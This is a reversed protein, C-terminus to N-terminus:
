AYRRVANVPDPDPLGRGEFAMAAALRNTVGLKPFIHELHKRVTSPAICLRHAVQANSQGAAVLQLVRREQVTLHAPLHPTPRERCLRELVPELLHLVAVDHDTFPADSRHMALQVVLEPEHRCAMVLTDAAQQAPVMRLRGPGGPLTRPLEVIDLLYGEADAAAMGIGECPILVALQELV